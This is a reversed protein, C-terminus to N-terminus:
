VSSGPDSLYAVAAEALTIRADMARRRLLLFAEPESVGHQQQLQVKARDVAERAAIRARLDDVQGALALFQEWRSVAVEIAPALDARTFPKVLYGMVGAATARTVVEAQSFATVMIVPALGEAAIEEAASLGDRVPMAVDLFVLDPQHARALDVAVQGDGAEAIVQYGLEGLMEVLDLRILAEDEAV